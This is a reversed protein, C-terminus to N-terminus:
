TPSEAKYKLKHANNTLSNAPLLLYKVNEKAINLMEMYNFMQKEKVYIHLEWEEEETSIEANREETGHHVIEPYPPYYDEVWDM